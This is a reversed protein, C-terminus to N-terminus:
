LIVCLGISIGRYELQGRTPREELCILVVVLDHVNNKIQMNVASPVSGPAYYTGLLHKNLLHLRNIAILQVKGLNLLFIHIFSDFSYPSAWCNLIHTNSKCLVQIWNQAGMNPPPKYWLSQLELELPDSARKQGIRAGTSVCAHAVKRCM